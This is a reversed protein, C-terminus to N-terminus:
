SAEGSGYSRWARPFATFVLYAAYAAAGVGSCIAVTTLPAHELIWAPGRPPAAVALLCVAFAVANLVLHVRGAESGSGGFCGCDVGDGAVRLLRLTFLCFGGYALAAALAALTGPALFAAGGLAAEGAGLARVAAPPVNIGAASLSGQAAYPSVVKAVGAIALLLTAAAFAPLVASSMSDPPHGRAVRVAARGWAHVYM